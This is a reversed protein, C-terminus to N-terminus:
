GERLGSHVHTDILGPCVLTDAVEITADVRGEVKPGVHLIPDDEFVVQHNRDTCHHGDHYCLGAM